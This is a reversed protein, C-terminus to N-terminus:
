SPADDSASTKSSSISVEASRPTLSNEPNVSIKPASGAVNGKVDINSDFGIGFGAGLKGKKGKKSGNPEKSNLDADIETSFLVREDHGVSSTQSPKGFDVEGRGKALKKLKKREEEKDDFDDEINASAGFGFGLSGAGDVVTNKVKELMSGFFRGGGGGESDDKQKVDVKPKKIGFGFVSNNKEDGDEGSFNFGIKFADDDDKEKGLKKDMFSPIKHKGVSTDSDLDFLQNEVNVEHDVDVQAEAALEPSLDASKRKLSKAVGLPTEPKEADFHFGIKFDGEKPLADFPSKPKEIDTHADFHKKLSDGKEVELAHSTDADFGLKVNTKMGGKEPKGFSPIKSIGVGSLSPPQVRVGFDLGKGPKEKKPIDDDAMGFQFGSDDTREKKVKPKDVKFGGGVVGAFGIGTKTIKGKPKEVSLKEETDAENEASKKETTKPDGSFDFGIKFNGHDQDDDHHEDANFISRVKDAAPKVDLGLFGGGSKGGFGLGFSKSDKEIPKSDFDANPKVKIDVKPKSSVGFDFSKGSKTAKEEGTDFGTGFNFGADENAEKKIKPKDIKGGFNVSFGKNTKPMDVDSHVGHDKGFGIKIGIDKNKRKIMDIDPVGFDPTGTGGDTGPKVQSVLGFTKGIKSKGKEFQVDDGDHIGLSFGSDDLKEKKVKPKDIKGGFDIDSKKGPGPINMKADAETGFGIKLHEDPLKVDPPPLEFSPVQIGSGNDSKIKAGFEVKKDSKAKDKNFGDGNVDLGFNFGADEFTKEKKTKPKEIKGGFNIDLKKEPGPANMKVDADTGFGIKLQKDRLKDDPSPLEFNPVKTGSGIDHKIKAGFDVNKDTKTKDKNFGNGTVDLGFNFGADEDTKEKKTKPKDIKGGFDIDLKKEPGPANMKVDADTGFGIKLQKDRLKDDPSPLEFNPVKIGSGIDHKIKAGFDVNKDTKTKDKNFGNGTVDLGFNFGADKDTKEKKTKPKDIKGGFDIDLKKEPGPANMKVDADTGFGIKLQKDRLREDPSPLEFNPVKIGSGIDHKINAGFDVNKDTKTKDKNFGDGTVDLGFNFGADEDTKEKKIKRKDISGGFNFDLKNGPGPFNMKVDADTGFGIKLQKDRLKDDPSPLEFNPVKIGSGIDHKIKAGFDVNKDTKTKDKNFGNGTVDLGFNFGADEDTKENKTKPKDIKGGFDIDLKKEPGPANMKVDADTGFGIKPHEDPLKVDPPPIEFSSIKIGSGINPKIKAGFEFKKDFKTKDKNFGDGTVDLGFNFGADGDTKEKKNKPKDIKEGFNIDLKKGPGPVNMKADTETGFEVKLHQDRLKEDPSPLEFNPIKIGSGIDSKIKAGFDVVKDTKSKNKNFGESDADLGFNFGAEDSKQNKLKLKENRGGFEIGFDKGTKRLGFNQDSDVDFGIKVVDHKSKLKENGSATEFSPVKFGGGIEPKIKAEFDAINEVKKNPDSEFGTGFNFGCDETKEKNIKPKRLNLNAKVDDEHKFDIGIKKSENKKTSAGFDIQHHFDKRTVPVVPKTTSSDFDANFGIEPGKINVDKRFDAGFGLQKELKKKAKRRKNDSDNGGFGTNYEFGNFDSKDKTEILKKGKGKVDASIGFDVGGGAKQSHKPLPLTKSRQVSASDAKGKKFSGSKDGGINIGFAVHKGDKHERTKKGFIKDGGFGFGLSFGGGGLKEKIKPGGTGQQEPEKSTSPTLDQSVKPTQYKARVEAGGDKHRFSGGLAKRFSGLRKPKDSKKAGGEGSKISLDGTSEGESGLRGRFKFRDLSASSLRNTRKKRDTRSLDGVLHVGSSGVDKNKEYRKGKGPRDSSSAGGVNSTENNAPIDAGGEKNRSSGGFVKRLSGFRKPKHGKKSGLEGSKISIDGASQGESFNRGRFSFKDLSSSSLRNSRKKTDRPSLDGRLQVGSSGIDRNKAYRKGKQPGDSFDSSIKGREIKKGKVDADFDGGVNVGFGHDKKKKHKEKGKDDSDGDNARGFGFGFKFSGSGDGDKKKHEDEVKKGKVDADFDAGVNVGFGHERDKKHKKKGDDDSDGNNAGGFGFGFKFGGSGDGDKKEHGDKIKKRKVDADFDGGVNVGFGHDRDKKHKKKGDDGSNGDNAGGFGFGFKFGDLEDGDKKEHGDKVKKGKVDADFDGGSNFGFGHDKNKKHKKKGDDDSDGDNAGGFGFGFKFIGSGDGDKKEHGDKVKKGKVDADFDGGVNVGFGHDKNNKHKKKRDDDSDGDNAGGFGFGFKFGGSGDGDKKEHGDKVKEGKVDADFDGGVNVGFGHNKDKKHKKKGDDDSDGDKGGGFGFGFKFIGSGDGDKKEHGDKVKKGKVDADLDGGVNVGYGHDKNNKHKKKRDDDSDGDNAGGFGFGFKFGGSGDGDKKEHGDKVKEAKVDADFDGGVNVGFGHNKDKKHKKKGDDDSDGDKGGGFGFGFKFIGSGDGDKKEHGDKVKKGKVDADLDGGVNVGFGHDKNNKHKKKRDDDSDGDNAGGFGFGFKFGGSGDGDKKEHGDKVKKGKVDADFDGGVNVGFGHNKDKKHKKKGDNDSDGDKGGGFGFGFKFGGSGDGDKKEHGEKVKEGKVDADFDGGVNVGFGHDKNKKHKKKVDDDSDGDKPGGFGFGFKFDGSEDGDKKEKGDEVKKGRVDADFDGGVNVGFGHDKDKKPKKKGDDDSNGDNAGGFGFGITFGGSGDGDKKEHGDKVKKGKVDADFDGGVNVGFGHDKDKKHKTRGDDDSDGDKGGGFGFGFKFGGSGDGDASGDPREAKPSKNGSHPLASAGAGVDISVDRHHKLKVKSICSQYKALLENVDQASRGSLKLSIGELCFGVVFVTSGYM